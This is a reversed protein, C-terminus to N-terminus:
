RFWYYPSNCCDNNKTYKEILKEIQHLSTIHSFTHEKGCNFCRLTKVKGNTRKGFDKKLM